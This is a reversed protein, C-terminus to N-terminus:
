LSLAATTGHYTITLETVPKPVYFMLRGKVRESPALLLDPLEARSTMGKAPSENLRPYATADPGQLRVDSAAFWADEATDPNTVTLNVGLLFAGRGPVWNSSRTAKGFAVEADVPEQPALGAVQSRLAANEEGLSDVQAQADAVAVTLDAKEAALTGAQVALADVEAALTGAQVALADVQATLTDVSGDLEGARGGALYTAGAASLVGALLAVLASLVLAKRLTVVRGSTTGLPAGPTPDPHASGGPERGPPPGKTDTRM